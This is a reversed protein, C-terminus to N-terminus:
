REESLRVVDAEVRNQDALLATGAKVHDTILPLLGKTDGRLPSDKDSTLFDLAEEARALRRRARLVVFYADAVRLLTENTVRLRGFRAADLLKRAETPGFLADSMALTMSPGFGVFLSDRDVTIINGETKQIQGDHATYTGGINFNPLFSARARLLVA